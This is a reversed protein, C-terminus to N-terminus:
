FALAARWTLLAGVVCIVSASGVPLWTAVRSGLRRSAFGRARLVLVGVLTLAAALGVSFAAVLAVGFAVRHLAVAGLLVILAVPSPLLGGALAVAGLGRWSLLAADPGDHDHHHHHDHGHRHARRHRLRAYLLWAGLGLVVMGAVLSLWPYVTEPPFLNSAWLTILGLAVVSATHMLSVAVGITMADRLRGGSGVLYGAMVTKGHGPGLAHLAGAGLALGVAGVVFFPSLGRREILRTFWGGAFEPPTSEAAREEAAPVEGTAGPAVTVEAGTEQLPNSLMDEPYSRLENSISTAPVSSEAIGQGGDAYAVVEKWGIRSSYNADSYEITTRDRPLAGVYDVEVRLVKLGGQGPLLAGKTREVALEIPEGGATLSLGSLLREGLLAAYSDLEPPEARGDSDTDIEAIEQFAAIEAMDVVYHLRIESRSIELGSFRNVTFNGLPHAAAAGAGVLVWVVAVLALLTARRM